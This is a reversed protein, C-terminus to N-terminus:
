PRRVAMAGAEDLVSELVAPDHASRGLFLGDVAGDLQGLLGTGASGGYIIRSGTLATDESTAARLATCVTRIYTAEAAAAAGIAWHPEYAVLLRGLVGARRSHVLAAGLQRVCEAAAADPRQPRSEGLCLVPTLGNRFAAAVKASVVEETEGFHTRREVHGVEVFECGIDAIETGSVEGTFPGSDESSLDQAGVKVGVPSLARVAHVLVPFTPLVFLEVAGRKLAPHREALAAVLAIWEITQQHRLYMKLGAGIILPSGTQSGADRM